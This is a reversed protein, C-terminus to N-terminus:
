TSGASRRRTGPPRSASCGGARSPWWTSSCRLWASRTPWRTTACRATPGRPTSWSSRAGGSSAGPRAGTSSPPTASTASCRQRRPGGAHGPRPELGEVGRLGERPLGQVARKRPIAGRGPGGGAARAAGSDGALPPGGPRDGRLRDRRRGALPPAGQRRHAVFLVAPLRGFWAVRGLQHRADTKTVAGAAANLGMRHISRWARLSSTRPRAPARQRSRERAGNRPAWDAEVGLRCRGQKDGDRVRERVDRQLM